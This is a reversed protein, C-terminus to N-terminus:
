STCLSCSASQIAREVHDMVTGETQAPAAQWDLVSTKLLKEPETTITSALCGVLHVPGRCTGQQKQVTLCSRLAGGKAQLSSSCTQIRWQWNNSLVNLDVDAIEPSSLLHTWHLIKRGSRFKAIVTGSESMQGGAIQIVSPPDGCSEAWQLSRQGTM